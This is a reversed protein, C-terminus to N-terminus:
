KLLLLTEKLVIDISLHHSYCPPLLWRLLLSELSVNKLSLLSLLGFRHFLICFFVCFCNRRGHDFWIGLGSTVALLLLLDPHEVRHHQCLIDCWCQVCVVLIQYSQNRISESAHVVSIVICNRRPDWNLESNSRPLSSMYFDAYLRIILLWVPFESPLTVTLVQAINIWVTQSHSLTRYMLKTLACTCFKM